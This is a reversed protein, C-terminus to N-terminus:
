NQPPLIKSLIIIRYPITIHKKDKATVTFDIPMQMQGYRKFTINFEDKVKTKSPVFAM